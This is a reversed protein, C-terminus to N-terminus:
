APATAQFSPRAAFADRARRVNPFHSLLEKGEPFLGLYAMSPAILLDPLSVAEGVLYDGDGYAEELMALGKRIQPVVAAIKDRDPQGEPGSPFLYQLIYDRVFARDLYANFASIWQEAKARQMPDSPMLAPGPYVEDVYRLIASTEFITVDGLKLVPIKGWPHRASVEASHPTATVLEHAVGKEFFALRAARTYSSQAMGILVPGAKPAKARGALAADLAFFSSNWGKAHAERFGDELFGSQVLTLETGDAAPRFTLTVMTEPNRGAGKLWGWSFVLKEPPTIEKFEGTVISVSGNAAHMEVRYKGGVRADVECRPVTMDEPGYWSQMLAKETFAAFVREPSASFRRVLVLPESSM